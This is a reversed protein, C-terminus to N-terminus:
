NKKFIKKLSISAKKPNRAKKLTIHPNKLFMKLFISAKEIIHQMKFSKSAKLYM